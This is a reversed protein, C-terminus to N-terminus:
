QSAWPSLNFSLIWHTCSLLYAHSGPSWPRPLGEGTWTWVIHRRVPSSGGGWCTRWASLHTQRPSAGGSGDQVSGPHGPGSQSAQPRWAMRLLHRPSAQSGTEGLPAKSPPAGILDWVLQARKWVCAASWAQPLGQGAHLKEEEEGAEQLAKAEWHRISLGLGAVRSDITNKNGGRGVLETSHYSVLSV